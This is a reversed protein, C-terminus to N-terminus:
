QPLAAEKSTDARMVPEAVSTGSRLRRWLALTIGKSEPQGIEMPHLYLGREETPKEEEVPIRHAQAYADQRVGTVQWSVELGPSGGGIVFRNNAIKEAVHLYPGPAGIATLQYRFDKNLAGFYSPLEVTARGEADLMVNGNYVNMMDPSEVFSHYLYKNAPDLPHDIKFSGASKSLTGNVQVAGGFLGAFGTQSFGAVANGSQTLGIVGYINGEGTLGTHPSKAHLRASPTQNHFGVAIDGTQYITMSARGDSTFFHLPHNTRTGLWGGPPDVAGSGVWTGLVALGDTHSVGYQRTATKVQFATTPSSTNVGIRGSSESIVSSGLDTRATFKAIRGVTGSIAASSPPRRRPRNLPWQRM